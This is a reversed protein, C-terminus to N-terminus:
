VACESAEKKESEEICKIDKFTELLHKGEQQILGTVFQKLPNAFYCNYIEKATKGAVLRDTSLLLTTIKDTQLEHRKMAESDVKCIETKYDVCKIVNLFTLILYEICHVVEHTITIIDMANGALAGEYVDSRIVIKNAEPNYYAHQFEGHIWEEKDVIEYNFSGDFFPIINEMVYIPDFKENLNYGCLLLAWFAAIHMGDDSLVIAEAGQVDGACCDGATESQVIEYQCVEM